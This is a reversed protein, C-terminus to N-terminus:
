RIHKVGSQLRHVFVHDFILDLKALHKFLYQFFCVVAISNIVCFSFTNQEWIFTLSHNSANKQMWKVEREDFISKNTNLAITDMDKPYSNIFISDLALKAARKTDFKTIVILYLHWELKNKPTVRNEM